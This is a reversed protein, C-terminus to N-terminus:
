ISVVGEHHPGCGPRSGHGLALGQNIRRSAFWSTQEEPHPRQKRRDGDHELIETMAAMFAEFGDPSLRVLTNEMVIAEAARMAADRVFDTRSRGKPRAARDIMAIDGEPLRMSLPHDKREGMRAM